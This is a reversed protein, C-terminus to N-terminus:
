QETIAADLAAAGEAAPIERLRAVGGGDTDVAFPAPFERNAVITLEKRNHVHTFLIIQYGDFFPRIFRKVM